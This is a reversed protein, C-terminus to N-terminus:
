QPAVFIVYYVSTGAGPDASFQVTLTDASLIKASTISVNNSSTAISIGAPISSTTIGSITFANTTSGGGWTASINAKINASLQVASAAIGSDISLGATGSAKLLNNNVLAAPAVLFNATAAAPDPISVVSAQGMAANSITTVTDGSNAVATLRLSGKAATAPFSALYGATGSLGAQFNGGNIAMASDDGILGNTDKFIAIHNVLVPLQVNGEGVYPALTISGADIVPYFIGHITSDAGYSAFIFDTPMLPSGLNSANLLYNEATIADYDDTSIMRVLRPNVGSQGAFNPNLSLLAM